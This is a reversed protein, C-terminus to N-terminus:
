KLFARRESRIFSYMRSVAAGRRRPRHNQNFHLHGHSRPCHNNSRYPILSHHHRRRPKQSPVTSVRPNKLPPTHPPIDKRDMCPASRLVSVVACSAPCGQQGPSPGQRGTRSSIWANGAHQSPNPSDPHPSSSAFPVSENGFGAIRGLPWPDPLRHPSADAATRSESGSSRSATPWRGSCGRLFPESNEKKLPTPKKKRKSKGKLNRNLTM